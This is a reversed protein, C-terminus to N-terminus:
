KKKLIFIGAGYNCGCNNEILWSELVIDEHLDGEDDVYSFQILDYDYQLTQMLWVMSFIRHSNFAVKHQGIPVTLYLHGGTKIMKQLNVMGKIHGQPDLSDGYRGLGFHGVAFTCSLSDCSDVLSTDLAISMDAQIFDINKVKSKVPRLDIVEVFRYSAIHAILGDIRSGVDIHRTPQNEFIKRAIYLDQHFYIGRAQGAEEGKDHLSPSFRVPTTVGAQRSMKRFKLYDVYARPLSVITRAIKLPDLGGRCLVVYGYKLMKRM